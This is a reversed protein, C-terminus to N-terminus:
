MAGSNFLLDLSFENENGRTQHICCVWLFTGKIERELNNICKWSIEGTHLLHHIKSSNTAASIMSNSYHSRDNEVAYINDDVHAGGHKRM